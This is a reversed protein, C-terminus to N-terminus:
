EDRRIQECWEAEIMLCITSLVEGFDTQGAATQKKIISKILPMPMTLEWGNEFCLVAVDDKSTIKYSKIEYIRKLEECIREIM